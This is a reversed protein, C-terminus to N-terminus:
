SRPSTPLAALGYSVLDPEDCSALTAALQQAAAVYGADYASIGVRTALAAAADILATDVRVLRGGAAVPRRRRTRGPV